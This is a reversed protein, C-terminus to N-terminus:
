FLVGMERIYQLVDLKEFDSHGLRADIGFSKTYYTSEAQTMGFTSGMVNAFPHIHSKAFGLAPKM